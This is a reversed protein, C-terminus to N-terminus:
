GSHELETALKPFIESFSSMVDCFDFRIIDGVEVYNNTEAEGVLTSLMSEFTECVSIFQATLQEPLHDHCVDIITACFRAFDKLQPLMAKLQELGKANENKDFYGSCDSFLRLFEDLGPQSQRLATITMTRIKDDNKTAISTSTM